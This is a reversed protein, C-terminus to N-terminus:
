TWQAPVPQPLLRLRVGRVPLMHSSNAVMVSRGGSSAWCQSSIGAAVCQAATVCHDRLALLFLVSTLRFIPGHHFQIGWLQSNTLILLLQTQGM